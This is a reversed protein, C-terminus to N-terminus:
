RHELIYSKLADWNGILTENIFEQPYKEIPMNEPFYDQAAVARQIEKETIGADSMLKKIGEVPFNIIEKEESKEEAKAKTKRKPEATKKEKKQNLLPAIEEYDFPLEDPLNFRNKADAFPTHTTYMVREGGTAKKKNGDTILITKYNAFLLLDAWEKVLPAVKNTTKTNLKLEWHDYEGMDDPKSVRKMTSHALIVVNLGMEVAVELNILLLAFEECLYTYGAGYGFDEIGKKGYKKCIHQICLREAADATDIVLTKCPKETYIAKVTDMLEEWTKAYIRSVDLRSSGKDLDIFLPDPFKSAFTTKGIGEVGYLCVKLPKEKVGKEIKLDMKAGKMM